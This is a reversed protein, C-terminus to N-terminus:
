CTHLRNCNTLEKVLEKAKTCKCEYIEGSYHCESMEPYNKIYEEVGVANQVKVYSIKVDDGYYTKYRTRLTSYDDTRGIKVYGNKLSGGSVIYIYGDEM